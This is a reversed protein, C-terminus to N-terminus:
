IIINKSNIKQTHPNNSVNFHYFECNQLKTFEKRDMDLLDAMTASDSKKILNGVFINTCMAFITGHIISPRQTTFIFALDRHRGSTMCKKFMDSIKHPSCFDQTEEIVILVNGMVYLAKLIEDFEIENVDRLVITFNKFDKVEKIYYAFDSFSYCYYYSDDNYEEMPDFIVRRSYLKQIKKGLMTKGCGSRGILITKDQRTFKM